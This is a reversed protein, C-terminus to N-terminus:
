RRVSRPLARADGVKQVQRLFLCHQPASGEAFRILDGESRAMILYLRLVLLPPVAHRKDEQLLAFAVYLEITVNALVERTQVAVITRRATLVIM